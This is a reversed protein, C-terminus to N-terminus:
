NNAKTFGGQMAEALETPKPLISALQEGIYANVDSLEDATMSPNTRLVWHRFAYRWYGELDLSATGDNDMKFMTQAANQMDLFTVDRTWVEMKLDPNDRSASLVHKQENRKTLLIEKDAIQM